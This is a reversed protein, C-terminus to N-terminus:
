NRWKKEKQAQTHELVKKFGDEGLEQIKAVAYEAAEDRSITEPIDIAGGTTRESVFWRDHLASPLRHVVIAAWDIDTGCVLYAPSVKQAYHYHGEKVSIKFEIEQYTFQSMKEKHTRQQVHARTRTREHAINVM